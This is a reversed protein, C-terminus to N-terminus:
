SSSNSKGTRKQFFDFAKAIISAAPKGGVGVIILIVPFILHKVEGLSFLQWFVFTIASIISMYGFISQNLESRNQIRLSSDVKKTEQDIRHARQINVGQVIQDYVEPCNRKYAAMMDPPPYPGMVIQALLEPMEMSAMKGLIEPDIVVGSEKDLKKNAM